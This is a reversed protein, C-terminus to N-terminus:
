RLTVSAVEGHEDHEWPGVTVDYLVEVEAESRLHVGREGWGRRQRNMLYVGSEGPLRRLVTPAFLRVRKGLRQSAVKATEVDAEIGDWDMGLERAAVGSSASGCFPDLVRGRAFDRMIEALLRVPKESPHHPHSGYPWDCRFVNAIDKRGDWKFEPGRAFAIM